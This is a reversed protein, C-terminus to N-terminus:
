LVPESAPKAEGRGHAANSPKLTFNQSQGPSRNNTASLSQPKSAQFKPLRSFTTVEMTITENDSESSSATEEVALAASSFTKQVWASV